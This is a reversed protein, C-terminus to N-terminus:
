MHEYRVPVTQSLGMGVLNGTLQGVAGALTTNSLAFEKLGIPCEKRLIYLINASSAGYFWGLPLAVGWLVWHGEQTLIFWQMFLPAYAILGGFVAACLFAGPFIFLHRVQLFGSSKGLFVGLRLSIVFYQYVQKYKGITHGEDNLVDFSPAIFGGLLINYLFYVSVLPLTYAVLDVALLKITKLAGIKHHRVDVKGKKMNEKFLEVDNEIGDALNSMEAAESREEEEEEEEQVVSISGSRTHGHTLGIFYATCLGLPIIFCGAVIHHNDIYFFNQVLAITAGLFAGFGNGASIFNICSPHYFTTYGFGTVEGVSSAGGIILVSLLVMLRPLHILSDDEISSSHDMFTFLLILGVTDMSATLLIRKHYSISKTWYDAFIRLTVQPIYLFLFILPAYKGAGLAKNAIVNIFSQLSLACIGMFFFSIRHRYVICPTTQPETDKNVAEAYEANSVSLSRHKRKHSSGDKLKKISQPQSSQITTSEPHILNEKLKPEKSSSQGM